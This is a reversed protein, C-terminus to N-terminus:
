KINQQFKCYLYYSLVAVVVVVKLGNFLFLM